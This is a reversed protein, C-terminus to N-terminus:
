LWSYRTGLIEIAGLLHELEATNNSDGLIVLMAPTVVGAPLGGDGTAADRLCAAPYAAVVDSLKGAEMATHSPLLDDLGGVARWQAGTAAWEYRSVGEGLDLPGTAATTDAVVLVLPTDGNGCDLDVIVNFYPTLAGAVLTTEFALTTLSALPTSDVGPLAAISKNGTGGGNFGGPENTGAETRLRLGGSGTVASAQNVSLDVFDNLTPGPGSDQGTEGASDGTDSATDAGTDDEEIGTTIPITIHCGSVALFAPVLLKRM